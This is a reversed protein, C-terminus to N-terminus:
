ASVTAHQSEKYGTNCFPHALQGNDVVAIGGDAKRVIHDVTISNEHILCNCIRCRLPQELAQKLFVASKTESDFVKRRQSGEAPNMVLFDFQRNALLSREIESDSTGVKLQGLVHDYINKLREYGKVGSGFKLAVQNPFTKHTLIFDEFRRRVNTFQIFADRRELDRILSVVALFATPQYRGNLSYFYVAPHLGLSAANVGSIRYTTRRTNKLYRITSAGDDDVVVVPPTKGRTADVVKEDNALNVLDFILPLTRASYGRGAIPIDLTKLPLNLPPKFLNNHIEEALIEIELRKEDDFKQWYKHGTGGRIIARAALANPANRSQLIRLETADIPTAEQNIKFFSAEAKKADGSVWQLQLALSALRRARALVEPRSQAPHEEATTYEAYTGLRRRILRRTAEAAAQQETPINNEFFSRSERGDGYDDQVWAILASLRHAGDIVFINKGSKWLIIAPILDGDLFTQVFDTIKEPSWNATERQFDPKRVANYFFTKKELDRIPLREISPWDATGEVNEFDERPILADLNVLSTAMHM